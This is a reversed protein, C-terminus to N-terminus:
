PKPVVYSPLIVAWFGKFLTLFVLQVDEPAGLGLGGAEVDHYVLLTVMLLM